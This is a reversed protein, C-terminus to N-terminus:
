WIHPWRWWLGLDAFFYHLRTIPSTPSFDSSHHYIIRLWRLEQVMEQENWLKTDFNPSIKNLIIPYKKSGAGNGARRGWKQEDQGLKHEGAGDQGVKQSMKTNAQRLVNEM